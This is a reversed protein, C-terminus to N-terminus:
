CYLGYQYCYCIRFHEHSRSKALRQEQMFNMAYYYVYNSNKCLAM